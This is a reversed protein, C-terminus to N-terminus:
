LGTSSDAAAQCPSQSPLRPAGSPPAHPRAWGAQRSEASRVTQESVTRAPSAQRRRREPRCSRLPLVTSIEPARACTGRDGATSADSTSGGHKLCRASSAATPKLRRRGAATMATSGATDADPTVAAPATPVVPAGLIVADSAVAPAAPDGAAPASPAAGRRLTRTPLLRQPDLYGQEDADSGSAWISSVAREGRPRRETRNDRRRRRRRSDRGNSRHDLRPPHADRRIWGATEITVSKGSTPVTGAFTVVGAAPAVVTAGADAGIELGRHQGAAYPHAPDFVFPQLVPGTPPGRGPARRPRSVRADPSCLWSYRRSDACPM